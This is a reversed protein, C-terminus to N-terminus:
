GIQARRWHNVANNFQTMLMDSIGGFPREAYGVEEDGEKIRTAGGTRLIAFTPLMQAAAYGMVGMKVDAPLQYLRGWDGTVAVQNTGAVAGYSYYRYAFRLRTYPFNRAPANVDEPFVQM